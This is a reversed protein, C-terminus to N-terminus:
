YQSNSKSNLNTKNKSSENIGLKTGFISFLINISLDIYDIESNNNPYLIFLMTISILLLLIMFLISINYKEFIYGLFFTFSFALIATHIYEM